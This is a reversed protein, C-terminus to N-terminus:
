ILRQFNVYNNFSRLFHSSFWCFWCITMSYKIVETSSPSLMASWVICICKSIFMHGSGM